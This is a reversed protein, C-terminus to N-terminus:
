RGLIELIKEFRMRALQLIESLSWLNLRADKLRDRAALVSPHYERGVVFVEFSINPRHRKIISEYELAQTVHEMTVTVKPRKFEMIVADRGDNRSRCILDPRIDSRDKYLEDLHSDLVLKLSKDSSWLELGERILWLNKEVLRHVEIEKAEESTMLEQLKEIIDIQTKIIETINNVQKLGWEEVLQGLREADKLDASIIARMLERLINSEYYRLVWEILEGAEDEEVNKLKVILARVVSTANTRVHAPMRDLRERIAPRNLLADTRRTAESSEVGQIIKRLFGQAWDDFKKVTPSDELFGDRTTNLLDQRGVVGDEPDLFNAHVEGVVKEATFFGHARTNLGFLSSEKVIRGRVRVALGPADQRSNAIIYFGKVEGVGEISEAFEARSGAVDESTCEVDNVFVRFDASKPLARYLHRRIVDASPLHLDPNLRLLRIRTGDAMETATTIIDLPQETLTSMDELSERDITISSQVGGKNSIVQVVGAIGFGALKGIGKSGILLRGKGATRQGEERRNRGIFLFKDSIDTLSMGTGTDLIELAADPGLTDPLSIRVDPADADHSNAALESLCKQVSNYASIGLHDLLRPSFKFYGHKKEAPKVM